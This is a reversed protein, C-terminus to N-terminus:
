LSIVISLQTPLRKVTTSILVCTLLIMGRHLYNVLHPKRRPYEVHSLINTMYAIISYKFDLFIFSNQAKISKSFANSETQRVPNHAFNNNRSTPNPSLAYM